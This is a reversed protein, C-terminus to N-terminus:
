KEYSLAQTVGNRIAPRIAIASGLISAAEVIAFAVPWWIFAIDLKLFEPFSMHMGWRILFTLCIGVATAPACLASNETFLLLCYHTAGAGLVRLVGVEQTRDLVSFYREVAIFFLGIVAVVLLLITTWLTFNMRAFTPDSKLGHQIGVITLIMASEISIAIGSAYSRHPSNRLWGLVLSLTM